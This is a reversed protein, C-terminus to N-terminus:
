VAKINGTLGLNPSPLVRKEPPGFGSRGLRVSGMIICGLETIYCGGRCSSCATSAEGRFSHRDRDQSSAPLIRRAIQFKFSTELRTEKCRWDLGCGHLGYERREEVPMM